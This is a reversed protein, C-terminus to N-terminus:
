PSATKQAKKSRWEWPPVPEKDRWLGRRADRALKEAALLAPDHSYRLFVWAAGARVQAENAWVDGVYVGGLTRKYRDKGKDVVRVAKGFVLKSLEQKSANGFPQKLELADIGELRVKAEVKEATLVTITDGDHVGVVKGVIEGGIAAVTLLLWLNIAALPSVRM